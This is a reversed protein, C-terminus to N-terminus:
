RFTLHVGLYTGNYGFPLPPLPSSELVARLAARDFTTSGSETETKADRISGDRDIIFHVTTRNGGAVQPRFWHAGILTKMRDIYLSYPFDGGELATVASGGIPIDPAAAAPAPTPAPRAPSKPPPAEAGKKTSKGFPSLPVTKEVHKPKAIPKPAPMAPAAPAITPAAIVERRPVSAFRITMVSAPLPTVHRFAAWVAVGSILGHLLLSAVVASAAGSELTARQRLVEGVADDM